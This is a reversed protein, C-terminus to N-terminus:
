FALKTQRKAFEEARMLKVIQYVYQVSVKYKHALVEHNDGTFEAYMEKQWQLAVFHAGKAIYILSGGWHERVHEAAKFAIQHAQDADLGEALLCAEVQGVLDACIEPYGTPLPRINEAVDTM